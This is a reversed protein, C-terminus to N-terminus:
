EQEPFYQLEELLREREDWSSMKVRNTQLLLHNDLKNYFHECSYLLPWQKNKSTRMMLLSVLMRGFSVISRPGSRTDTREIMPQSPGSNFGPAQFRNNTNYQNYPQYPVNNAVRQNDNAYLPQQPPDTYNCGDTTCVQPCGNFNENLYQVTGCNPPPTSTCTRVLVQEGPRNDPLLDCNILLQRLSSQRVHLPDYVSATDVPNRETHLRQQIANMLWINNHCRVTETIAMGASANIAVSPGLSM